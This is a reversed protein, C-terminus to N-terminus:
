GQTLQPRRHRYAQLFYVDREKKRAAHTPLLSKQTSEARGEGNTRTTSNTYMILPSSQHNKQISTMISPVTAYHGGSPRLRPTRSQRRQHTTPSSFADVGDTYTHTRLHDTNRYRIPARPFRHGLAEVWALYKLGSDTPKSTRLIYM